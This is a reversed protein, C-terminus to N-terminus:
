WKRPKKRATTLLLHCLPPRQVVGANILATTFDSKLKIKVSGDACM